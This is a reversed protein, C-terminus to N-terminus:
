ILRCCFFTDYRIRMYLSFVDGYKTALKVFDVHFENSLLYTAGIIPLGIPGPVHEEAAAVMKSDVSFTIINSSSGLKGM